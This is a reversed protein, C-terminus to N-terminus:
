LDTQFVILDDWNGYRRNCILKFCLLIMEIEMDETVCRNSVCYSLDDWNGYRRNCIPKFCLLIMEIEVFRNSVCYSWSKETDGFRNLPDASGWWSIWGFTRIPYLDLLAGAFPSAANIQPISRRLKMGKPPDNQCKAAQYRRASAARSQPLVGNERGGFQATITCARFSWSKSSMTSLFGEPLLWFGKVDRITKPHNKPFTSNRKITIGFNWLQPLRPLWSSRVQSVWM